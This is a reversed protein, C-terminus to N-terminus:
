TIVSFAISLASLFFITYDMLQLKSFEENSIRIDEFDLTLVEIASFM